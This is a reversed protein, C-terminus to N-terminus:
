DFDAIDLGAEEMFAEYRFEALDESAYFLEAIMSQRLRSIENEEVEDQFRVTRNITALRKNLGPSKIVASLVHSLDSISSSESVDEKGGKPSDELIRSLSLELKKNRRGRPSVLDKVNTCLTKRPSNVSKNRTKPPTPPRYPTDITTPSAPASSDEQTERKTSSSSSSSALSRYRPAAFASLNATLQEDLMTDELHPFYRLEVTEQFTIPDTIWRKISIFTM